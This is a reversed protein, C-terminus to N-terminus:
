FASLQKMTQYAANVEEIKLGELEMVNMMEDRTDGAAGNMTMAQATSISTPSIFLNKEPESQHLRQFVAFGFRNNATSLACLATQEVCDLGPLPDDDRPEIANKECATLLLFGTMVLLWPLKKM